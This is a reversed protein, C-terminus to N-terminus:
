LRKFNYEVAEGLREYNFEAATPLVLYVPERVEVLFVGGGVGTFLKTKFRKERTAISLTDSDTWFLVAGEVRVLQDNAAIKNEKFAM